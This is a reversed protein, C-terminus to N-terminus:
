HQCLVGDFGCDRVVVGLVRVRFYSIETAGVCRHGLNLNLSEGSSRWRSIDFSFHSFAVTVRQAVIPLANRSSCSIIPPNPHILIRRELRTNGLSVPFHVAFNVFQVYRLRSKFLSPILYFCMRQYTIAYRDSPSINRQKKTTALMKLMKQRDLYGNRTEKRLLVEMLVEIPELGEKRLSKHDSLM